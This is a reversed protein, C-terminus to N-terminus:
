SELPKDTYRLKTRPKVSGALATRRRYPEISSSYAWFVLKIDITYQITDVQGKFWIKLINTKCKM